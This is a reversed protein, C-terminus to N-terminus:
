GKQLDLEIKFIFADGPDIHPDDPEASRDFSVNKPNGFDLPIGINGSLKAEPFMLYAVVAYIPKKGVNKVEIELDKLWTKSQLNRVKLELPVSFGEKMTLTREQGGSDPAQAFSSTSAVSMLFPLAAFVLLVTRLRSKASIAAVFKAFM